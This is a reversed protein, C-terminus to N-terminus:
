SVAGPRITCTAFINQWFLNWATISCEYGDALESLAEPEHRIYDDIAQRTLEGHIIDQEGTHITWFEWDIREANEVMYPHTKLHEFLVSLYTQCLCEGGMGRLGVGFASSRAGLQRTLSDLNRRNAPICRELQAPGVGITTLFRDYIAPHAKDPDGEGLEEALIESLLSRLGGFPLKALLLALDSIYDITFFRYQVCVQRLDEISLQPLVKMKQAALAETAEKAADAFQWFSQRDWAGSPMSVSEISSPTTQADQSKLLTMRGVRSLEPRAYGRFATGCKVNRLGDRRLKSRHNM